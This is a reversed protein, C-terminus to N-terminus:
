TSHRGSSTTSAPIPPLCDTTSDLVTTVQLWPAATKLSATMARVNQAVGPLFPAAPSSANGIIVYGSQRRDPFWMMGTPM